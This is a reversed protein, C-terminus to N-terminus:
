SKSWYKTTKGTTGDTTEDPHPYFHESDVTRGGHWGEGQMPSPAFGM